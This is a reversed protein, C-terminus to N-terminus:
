ETATGARVRCAELIAAGERTREEVDQVPGDHLQPQETQQVPAPLDAIQVTHGREGREGREDGAARSVALVTVGLALAAAGGIIVKMTNSMETRRREIWRATREFSVTSDVCQRVLM